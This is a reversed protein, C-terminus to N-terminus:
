DFLYHQGAGERIEGRISGRSDSGAEELLVTEEGDFSIKYMNYVSRLLFATFLIRYKPLPVLNLFLVAGSM